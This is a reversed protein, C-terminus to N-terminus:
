TEAATRSARRYQRPTMGTIARFKRAFYGSDSFGASYGIQTISDDTAFLAEAAKRIRYAQLYTTISCNLHNRFSRTATRVSINASAAIEQLTLSSAYNEHIFTLLRRIYDDSVSKQPDRILDGNELVRLWIESLWSRIRVEYGFAKQEHAEKVMQILKAMRARDSDGTQFIFAHFGHSQSVPLIYRTQFISTPTGGIIQTDFVITVMRSEKEPGAHMSHLANGNLFAGEGQSLLIRKEPIELLLTGDTVLLIECEEHWHWPVFRAPFSAMNNDHVSLPFMPTGRATMERGSADTVIKDLQVKEGKHGSLGSKQRKGDLLVRSESITHYWFMMFSFRRVAPFDAATLASIQFSCLFHFEIIHGINGGEEIHKVGQLFVYFDLCRVSSGQVPFAVPVSQTGYGGTHVIRFEGLQRNVARVAGIDFIHHFKQHLAGPGPAGRLASRIIYLSCWRAGKIM